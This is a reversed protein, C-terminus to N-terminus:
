ESGVIKKWLPNTMDFRVKDLGYPTYDFLYSIANIYIVAQL